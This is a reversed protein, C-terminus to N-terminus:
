IEGRALDVDSLDLAIASGVRIGTSLMLHFLAYDRQGESGKGKALVALLQKQDDSSM